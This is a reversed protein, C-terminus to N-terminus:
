FRIRWTQYGMYRFFLAGRHGSAVRELNRTEKPVSVLKGIMIEIHFIKSIVNGMAFASDLAGYSCGLSLIIDGAAINASIRHKLGM